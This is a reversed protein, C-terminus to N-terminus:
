SLVTSLKAKGYSIAERQPSLWAVKQLQLDSNVGAMQSRLEKENLPVCMENITGPGKTNKM